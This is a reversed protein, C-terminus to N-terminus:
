QESNRKVKYYMKTIMITLVYLSAAQKKVVADYQMMHVCQLETMLKGIACFQPAGVSGERSCCGRPQALGQM